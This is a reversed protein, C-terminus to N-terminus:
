PAFRVEFYRVGERFNDRAFHYAAKKLGEPCRLVVNILEFPVLYESLSDYTEKFIKTELEDVSGTELNGIGMDRSIKVLDIGQEKALEYVLAPPVSGDLHVHLDTKPLEKIEKRTLFSLHKEM